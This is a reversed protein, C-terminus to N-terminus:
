SSHVPINTGTIAATRRSTTCCRCFSHLLKEQERRPAVSSTEEQLLSHFQGRKSKRPPLTVRRLSARCSNTPYVSTQFHCLYFVKHYYFLNTFRAAYSTLRSYSAPTRLTQRQQVRKRGCPICCLEEWCYRLKKDDSLSDRSGSGIGLARIRHGCM